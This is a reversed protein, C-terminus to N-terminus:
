FRHLSRTLDIRIVLLFACEAFLLIDDATAQPLTHGRQLPFIVSSDVGFM